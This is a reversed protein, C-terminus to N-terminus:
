TREDRGRVSPGSRSAEFSRGSENWRPDGTTLTTDLVRSSSRRRSSADEPTSERGDEIRPSIREIRGWQSTWVLESQHARLILDYM